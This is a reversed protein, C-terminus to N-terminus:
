ERVIEINFPPNVEMTGCDAILLDKKPSSGDVDVNEMQEVVDQLFIEIVLVTFVLKDQRMATYPQSCITRVIRGEPSVVTETNLPCALYFIEGALTTKKMDCVM